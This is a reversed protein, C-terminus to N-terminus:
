TARQISFIPNFHFVTYQLNSQLPVSYIPYMYRMLRINGPRIKDTQDVRQPPNKQLKEEKKNVLDTQDPRQPHHMHKNSPSFFVFFFM